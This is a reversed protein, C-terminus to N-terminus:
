ILDSLPTKELQAMADEYGYRILSEVRDTAFNLMGGLSARHRIEVLRIGPHLRPDVKQTKFLHAVIITTCGCEALPAVPVNDYVGGDYYNAEELQVPPFVIPISCSAILRELIEADSYDPLFPYEVRPEKKVMHRYYSKMLGFIGDRPTGGRAITVYVRRQRLVAYPLREELLRRLATIDYVGREAIHINERLLRRFTGETARIDRDPMELWMKETEAIGAAALFAANVSGISTGSFAHIRSFLGHEDLAKAVGVQYPGRAGGGSLCLGLKEM